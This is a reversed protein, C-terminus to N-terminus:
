TTQYTVSIYLEVNGTTGSLTGVLNTSNADLRGFHELYKGGGMGVTWTSAKTPSFPLGGINVNVTNITAHFYMSCHVMRGIKTYSCNSSSITDASFTTTPTFTGTEYDDLANSSSTEGNFKLGDGDIRIKESNSAKFRIGDSVGNVVWHSGGDHELRLENSTGSSYLGLTGQSGAGSVSLKHNPSSTGVGVSGDSKVIVNESGNNQLKIDKGSGDANITLHEDSSKITSM